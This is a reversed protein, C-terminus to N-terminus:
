HFAAMLLDIDQFPLHFQDSIISKTLTGGILYVGQRFDKDAKLLNVINGAEGLRLLTPAFYNSLAYSATHPVSSAINPVCYHTIDHKRFVPENHSTVRSTEVCGGQDISVDVIVAGRKMKQVMDESVVIPARGEPSHMAGIVIDARKLSSLLIGPQLISTFIRTSLDNQIRRLRYVSNDFVKVSAGLGLAARAAYEGVTGAGLVVVETPAIGSFGGLMCGTGNRTDALYGAAIMIAANGVIESTTRLVPYTHTKDMIYEFAIAVMKRNMLMRFYDFSQGALHLASILTQRSTLLETEALSPPAIKLIIDTKFVEEPSYVIHAGADGYQENSFNAAKGADAEIVVEHGSAVLLGVGQPVLPIRKEQYHIEKPVGIRIRSKRQAVELTEEKPMLGEAGSFNYINGQEQM